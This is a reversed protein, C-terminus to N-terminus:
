RVALRLGPRSSREGVEVLIEPDAPLDYPLLLNIQYLGASFPTVGAYQVRSADVVSGAVSVKLDFLLAMPAPLQPLEGIGPNPVAKGLGTCFVIVVEGPHAPAEPTVLSYDAHEALAFGAPAEFLAPAADALTIAVEPGSVGQRVVRVPVAGAVQNSPVLFNIQTDSVYFLPAPSNDVYVQTNALQTPLTRDVIDDPTVARTSFSLGTGFLALISGPAFPGSAYDSANVISEATYDPRTQAAAHRCLAALLLVCV